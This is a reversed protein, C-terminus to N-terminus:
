LPIACDGLVESRDHFPIVSLHFVSSSVFELDHAFIVESFAFFSATIEGAPYYWADSCLRTLLYLSDFLLTSAIGNM